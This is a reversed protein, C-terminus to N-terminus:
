VNLFLVTKMTGHRSSLYLQIHFSLMLKLLQTYQLVLAVFKGGLILLWKQFHQGLYSYFHANNKVRIIVNSQTSAVKLCEDLFVVQKALSLFANQSDLCGTHVLVLNGTELFGERQIQRSTNLQCNKLFYRGKQTCLLNHLHIGLMKKFLFNEKVQFPGDSSLRDKM